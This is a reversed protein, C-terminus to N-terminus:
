ARSWVRTPTAILNKLSMQELLCRQAQAVDAQARFLETKREEWKRMKRFDGVTTSRSNAWRSAFM